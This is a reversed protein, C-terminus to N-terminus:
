AIRYARSVTQEVTGGGGTARARLSVFGPAAPHRLRAAGGTVPAPQWTRGDDYSVDVSPKRVTGAPGRVAVPVAFARGAPATGAPDLAPSFAVVPLPLAGDRGGASRFTWTLATRTSIPRSAREAEVELRYAAEGAPVGFKAGMYPEEAVLEGDRYLAIRARSVESLGPHGAGDAYLLPFASIVDGERSILPTGEGDIPAPGFVGRNWIEDYARGAEYRTAASDLFGGWTPGMEIYGNKWRIGGDTNVYETHKFPPRFDTSFVINFYPRDAPWAGSAVEAYTDPMPAGYDRRVTALDERGVRRSFGTPVQGRVFWALRYAEASGTLDGGPGPVAWNGAVTTLLDYRGSGVQATRIRPTADFLTAAVSMYYPAGDLTRGSYIVDTLLHRAAPDPVAISVPRAEAPDLRVSRDRDLRLGPHVLMTFGQDDVTQSDIVYTGKALRLTVKGGPPVTVPNLDKRDVDTRYVTTTAEAAGTRDLTLEYSEVEKVVALPTSVSRGGEATAELYGGLPGDPADGRTDATVTAEARGGAPVTLTGPTVTFVSAGGRPSLRLTVPEPGDNRYAIKRTVPEDDDHPWAVRGFSVSAPTTTVTQGIARAVDVRGAGQTFIGTDPQPRATATLAGKLQEPTWDPRLGALIAASGAVHPTAMSTGSMAVYPGDGPSDKGRAATIAVGPATLDPKLASDGPRPGASSFLAARDSRDVAGVSLAADATSPSSVSGPKGTNGAAVVFLIGYRETLTQVAEEVPDLGPSDPSGLSLNAVKAGQEAAWQMGALIASDACWREACVKADLLTAGPAVGRYREGTGAITSAVHTGHGIVDADTDTGAFNRRAVVKGALDPHTDDIGTDLVAVKVGTGTYGKAWATPAGIQKVSADLSLTARGDLWVKATGASLSNRLDAWSGAAADYRVAAGNVAPLDLTVAMGKAALGPRRAGDPGAVILPLAGPGYELLTTVDFLRPDLRGGALLPLADGPVVRLRDGFKRTSFVVNKRGKGPSVRVADATVTVRDGTILTVTRATGGPPPAEASPQTAGLLMITLSIATTRFIM